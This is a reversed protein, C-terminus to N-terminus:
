NTVVSTLSVQTMLRVACTDCVCNKIGSYISAGDNAAYFCSSDTLCAQYVWCSWQQRWSSLM